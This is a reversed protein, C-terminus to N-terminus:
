RPPPAGLTAEVGRLWAATGELDDRALQHGGPAWQLTVRAGSRELVERVHEVGAAGVLPDLRGARILVPKGGLDPLPAPDFPLMPRLLVAGALVQPHRLLLSIAINAGNSFGLAVIKGAAIKHATAAEALFAALADTEAALNDLDFVGEALRRFFRPMGHELVRGRPSLLAAGPLLSSGLPLLDEEDGGTGHLLLLTIGSAGPVFRYHFGFAESM